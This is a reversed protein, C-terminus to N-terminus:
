AVLVWVGAKGPTEGKTWWKAKYTHGEYSVQDGGNYAKAGSWTQVASASVPKWVDSNDPKEGQTWWGAKYEIGNYTVTDGALYVKTSDWTGTAAPPTVVAAKTTITLPASATSRNGAADLASVTYSYATAAKLGSDSYSAVATTGLLQGDRYVEYKAVGINDSAATWTFAASTETVNGAKLGSPRSPAQTDPTPTVAAPLTSASVPVSAASRNGKNDVAVITYSYATNAPLGDDTYTTGTSTGVVNGDRSVEYNKIGASATSASWSMTISSDTHGSCWVSDPFNPLVVPEPEPTTTGGGQTLNVDIAQYFANVTDGIEWVGLIVYYGARDTPVNCTHTVTMEPKKMGGDVTCFPKSELQDRTLPKNPDWGIKTIYYDWKETQHNATLTWTFTNTGGKMDVKKWRDATQADLETYKAAGALKGDAPGSAPFGGLGEVSQPEYQIAGCDKNTGQSCLLTRSAPSSVYGHASAKEASALLCLLGLLVFSFLVALKSWASQRTITM